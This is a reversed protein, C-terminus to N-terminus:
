GQAPPEETKEVPKLQDRKAFAHNRAVEDKLRRIQSFHGILRSTSTLFMGFLAGFMGAYALLRSTADPEKIAGFGGAFIFLGIGVVFLGWGVIRLAVTM